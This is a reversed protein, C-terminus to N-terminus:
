IFDYQAKLGATLRGQNSRVREKFEVEAPHREVSTSVKRVETIRATLNVVAGFVQKALLAPRTCFSWLKVQTPPVTLCHVLSPSAVPSALPPGHGKGTPVPPPM